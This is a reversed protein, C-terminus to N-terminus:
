IIVWNQSQNQIKIKIVRAIFMDELNTWKYDINLYGPASSGVMLTPNFIQNILSCDYTNGYYGKCSYTETQSTKVTQCYSYGNDCWHHGNTTHNCGGNRTDSGCGNCSLTVATNRNPSCSEFYNSQFVFNFKDNYTLTIFINVYQGDAFSSPPFYYNVWNSILNNYTNKNQYFLVFDILDPFYLSFEKYNWQSSLNQVTTYSSVYTDNIKQINYMMNLMKSSFSTFNTLFYYDTWLDMDSAIYDVNYQLNSINSNIIPLSDLLCQNADILQINSCTPESKKLVYSM